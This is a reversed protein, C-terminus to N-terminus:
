ARRQHPGSAAAERHRRCRRFLEVFAAGEHGVLDHDIELIRHRALELLFRTGGDSVSERGRGPSRRGDRDADVAGGRGPELVVHARDGARRPEVRDDYRLDFASGVQLARRAQAAARGPSAPELSQDLGRQPEALDVRDGLCRLSELRQDDPGASMLTESPIEMGPRPAAIPSRGCRPRPPRARPPRAPSRRATGASRPGRHAKPRGSIPRAAEAEVALPREVRRLDLGDGPREGRGRPPQSPPRPLGRHAKPRSRRARHQEVPLHDILRRSLARLGEDGPPVCRLSRALSTPGPSRRPSRALLAIQEAPLASPDGLHRANQAGVADRGAERDRGSGADCIHLGSHLGVAERVLDLSASAPSSRM